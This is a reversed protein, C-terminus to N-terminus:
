VKVKNFGLYVVAFANQQIGDEIQIRNNIELYFHSFQQVNEIKVIGCYWKTRFLNMVSPFFLEGAAQLRIYCRGLANRRM